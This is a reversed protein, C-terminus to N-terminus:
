PQKKEFINKWELSLRLELQKDSPAAGGGSLTSAERITWQLPYNIAPIVETIQEAHLFSIVAASCDGITM